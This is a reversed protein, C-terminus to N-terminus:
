RGFCGQQEEQNEKGTAQSLASRKSRKKAAKECRGSVGKEHNCEGGSRESEVCRITGM